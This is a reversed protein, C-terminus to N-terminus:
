RKPNQIALNPCKPYLIVRLSYTFMVINEEIENDDKYNSNRRIALLILLIESSSHKRNVRLNHVCLNKIMQSQLLAFSSTFLLIKVKLNPTILLTSVRLQKDIPIQVSVQPLCTPIQVTVAMIKTYLSASNICKM